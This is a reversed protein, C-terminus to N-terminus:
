EGKLLEKIETKSIFPIQVRQQKPSSANVFICDGKGALKEAGGNGLILMSERYSSCTLAIRSPLNTLLEGSLISARPSQTSLIFHFGCARGKQLLRVLLPKITPDVMVLDALEDIVVLVQKFENTIKDIGLEKMKAYRQEMKYILATLVQKAKETEYVVPTILHPLNEYISFEVVKPDILVLGLDQPKNYCCLSIIISNLCVSKGSGTTGAVLLHTLDELTATISNGNGDLGVCLSFPKAKELENSFNTLPIIQRENRDLEIAFDSENSNCFKATSRVRAGLVECLKKAKNLQLANKLNFYYKLLQPAVSMRVFDCPCGWEGMQLAISEGTYYEM